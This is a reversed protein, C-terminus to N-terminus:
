DGNAQTANSLHPCNDCADGRADGDEDHQDANATMPCNDNANLVGDGDVDNPPGQMMADDTLPDSADVPAGEGNSCAGAICRQASPCQTDVDCPVGTPPSPSFCGAVLLTVLVSTRM